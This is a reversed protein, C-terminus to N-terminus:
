LKPGSQLPKPSRCDVFFIKLSVGWLRRSFDVHCPFSSFAFLPIFIVLSALLELRCQWLVCIHLYEGGFSEDRFVIFIRSLYWQKSTRPQREWVPDFWSSSWCSAFFAPFTCQLFITLKGLVSLLYSFLNLFSSAALM